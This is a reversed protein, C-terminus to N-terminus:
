LGFDFDFFGALEEGVASGAAAASAVFGDMSAPGSVALHSAFYRQVRVQAWPSFLGLTVLLLVLNSFAIWVMVFPSLTSELQLAEGLRTGNVALNFTMTGLLTALFLVTVVYVLAILMFAGVMVPSPKEGPKPLNLLSIGSHSFVLFACVAGVALIAMALLYILYIRGAPIEAKFSQGGFSHNNIRYYDRARHALPLLTGLTITALLQWGIIVKFAGGYSGHFDFRINRYSTNRANFRFSSRVLWPVAFLFVVFWALVLLPATAATIYYALLLGLAIVRGLLIRRPDGHYDFSNGALFTNGLFYRKNRVKAWASFIGLTVITLALNVIWIKFYESGSGEFRMEHRSSAPDAQPAGAAFRDM